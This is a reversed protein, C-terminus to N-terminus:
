SEGESQSEFLRRVRAGAEELTPDSSRTLREEIWGPHSRAYEIWERAFSGDRVEGLIERMREAVASDVVRPGRSLDGFLATPSIRRRMGTPGRRELLEATLRLQQM